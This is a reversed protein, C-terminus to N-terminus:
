VAVEKRIEVHPLDKGDRQCRKFTYAFVWPNKKWAEEGYLSIWLSKFSAYSSDFASLTKKQMYNKFWVKKEDDIYMKIGEHICDEDSINRLREVTVDMIKVFYRALHAPLNYPSHRWKGPNSIQDGICNLTGGSLYEVPCGKIQSPRLSDFEKPVRFGEPLYCVDGIQYKPYVAINFDPRKLNDFGIFMKKQKDLFKNKFTFHDPNENIYNLGKEPRRTKTKRGAM